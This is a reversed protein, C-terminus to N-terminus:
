PVAMGQMRAVLAREDAVLASALAAVDPSAGTLKELSTVAGQHHQIMSAFFLRDFRVGRAHALAEMQDETLMGAMHAHEAAGTGTVGHDHDAHGDAVVPVAQGREKLWAQLAQVKERQSIELEAAFLQVRPSAGHAPAMAEIVLAQVHHAIVAQVVDVDTHTFAPAQAAVGRTAMAMAVTLAALHRLPTSSRM